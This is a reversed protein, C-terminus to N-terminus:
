VISVKLEKYEQIAQRDDNMSEIASRVKSIHEQLWLLEAQRQRINEELQELPVETNIHGIKELM